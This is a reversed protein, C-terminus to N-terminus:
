VSPSAKRGRGSVAVYGKERALAQIVMRHREPLHKLIEPKAKVKELVEDITLKEM